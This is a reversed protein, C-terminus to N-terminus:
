ATSFYLAPSPHPPSPPPPSPPRDEWIIIMVHQCGLCNRKFVSNRIDDSQLNFYQSRFGEAFSEPVMCATIFAGAVSVPPAM